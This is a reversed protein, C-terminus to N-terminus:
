PMGNPGNFLTAHLIATGPAATLLTDVALKECASAIRPFQATFVNARRSWITVGSLDSGFLARYGDLKIECLWDRGEPLTEVARVYMPEIFHVKGLPFDKLNVGNLIGARVFCM